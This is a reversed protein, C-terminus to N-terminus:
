PIPVFPQIEFDNSYFFEPNSINRELYYTFKIRYRGTNLARVPLAGYTVKEGPVLETLPEMDECPITPFTYKSFIQWREGRQAEEIYKYEELTFPGKGCVEYFIGTSDQNSIEISIINQRSYEYLGRDTIVSIPLKVLGVNKKEIFYFNSLIVIIVCIIFVGILIKIKSNM